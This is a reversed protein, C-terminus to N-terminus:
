LVVGTHEYYLGGDPKPPPPNFERIGGPRRRQRIEPRAEPLSVKKITEEKGKRKVIATVPTDAKIEQLMRAFEAADSPVDKGNFKLLIDHSKLGAKAAASDPLVQAIVLGQGKPLDLQDALVPSPPEVMVGLRSSEQMRGFRNQLRGLVSDPVRGRMDEMRKRMDQMVRELQKRIEAMKEPDINQGLNKLLEEIDPMEPRPKKRPEDKKDDDKIPDDKKVEDKRTPEKKPEDKKAPQDDGAAQAQAVPAARDPQDNDPPPAAQARFGLGAVLVALSLLGGATALTWGRSCRREVAVPTQLLMAIRRFLDSTRGSVGSAGAPAMPATTLGLLFQAYDARQGASAAAADAVYEQCLQVQRRLWWFWPLYFYFAQGVAFLLCTWPDRRELHTLEHAFVWRLQDAPAACLDAPLVVTPRLLGCSLPVRLRRSVLLRPRRAPATQGQVVEAFVRSVAEPAPEARRLLRWLAVYGLVWRGLVCAVILGYAVSLWAQWPVDGLALTGAPSADHPSSADAEVPEVAPASEPAAWVEGMTPQTSDELGMAPHTPRSSEVWGVPPEQAVPPASQTTSSEAPDASVPLTVVLWAPALVLVSVLMAAIMSWEGLRQRRAPQRCVRVLVWGLLLLLGGAVASHPLWSGIASALWSM